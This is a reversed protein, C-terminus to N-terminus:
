RGLRVSPCRSYADPMESKFLRLGGVRLWLGVKELVVTGRPPALTKRGVRWLPLPDPAAQHKRLHQRQKRRRDHVEVEIAQLAPDPFANMPRAATVGLGSRYGM